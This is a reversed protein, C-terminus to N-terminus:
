LSRVDRLIPKTKYIWENARAICASLMRTLPENNVGVSRMEATLDQLPVLSPRRRLQCLLRTGWFVVSLNWIVEKVDPFRDLGGDAKASRIVDVLVSGKVLRANGM